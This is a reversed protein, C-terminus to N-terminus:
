EEINVEGREIAGARSLLETALQKAALAANQEQAAALDARLRAVTEAPFEDDGFTNGQLVPLLPENGVLLEAIAEAAKGRSIEGEQLLSLVFGVEGHKLNGYVKHGFTKLWNKMAYARDPHNPEGCKVLSLEEKAAALETRLRTIEARLSGNELELTRVRLEKSRVIENHTCSCGIRGCGRCPENTTM